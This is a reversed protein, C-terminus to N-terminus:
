RHTNDIEEFTGEGTDDPARFKGQEVLRMFADVVDPALQTGAVDHIISVAKEFNMRKRYPRDSYMADFTDAVAIIQAVRPIEDATLGRPYGRGDPREHHAWAGTALEPMIGIDKLATYGLQAHSKITEFEEDTLKGPKNLVASPVGIKGIDHLLAIDFYREVTEEDYGLERTLMATYAAVRSSHGNTYHDKMDIVRAFAVTMERVLQRTEREKKQLKRTKRWFFLLIVLAVLAIMAIACLVQFWITETFVIEKAIPTSLGNDGNGRSDRLQMVFRYTGGGLNTYDVPELESVQAISAGQEFGDLYYSVQPNVFSYTFVYPYVTLRSTEAPITINGEDDPFVLQGDAEVYPVAMRVDDVDEFQAEINVKAVGSTGAIYLDGEDSVDSYSNGTTIVSLGNDRDYHVPDIAGNALLEDVPVVYIGNSALVWMEGWSNEFLDFNNSYPFNRVTAVEYGETMYAISNSTVLWFVGHDADHKVRMVVDSSLGEDTGIHTTGDSGVIYLGGGDTGIVVDGNPAECATLAETNGLGSSEDIVGTVRNGEIVAVGGTCIALVTGDARECVARVRTSPLGDEATFCTAEGDDYRVLGNKGFTSFWVRGRSDEIVSRIRYGDLMAILDTEGLDAGDATTASNLPLSEVLGDEGLVMIGTDTGIFLDGDHECTSNVVEPQLNYREFLDSFQNAVIKMVGQRSSTFWLNGEYDVMAHEISNNLPINELVRVGGEELFGIGNDACIVFDDGFRDLSKVNSLPSVDIAQPNALGGELEGYYVTSVETGLYVYGPRDPDPMVSVIGEIGLGGKDFFSRIAGNELTFVEGNRTVGYLVGDPGLHLDNVYAGILREDAIVHVDLNEDIVAIGDTTGAYMSGDAGKEIVRVSLSRLGDSKNFFRFEGKDMLAIGADNTGIWLRDRDDVCLSVVSAVGTTSDIREFDNGDYRTLGSYSGIWIFGTETKAIANAEPTSLGNTNDYLVASCGEEQGFPDVKIIDGESAYATKPALACALSLAAAIVCAAALVFAAPAGPVTRGGLAGAETKM